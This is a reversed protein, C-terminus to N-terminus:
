ISKSPGRMNWGRRLVQIQSLKEVAPLFGDPWKSRQRIGNAGIVLTGVDTYWVCALRFAKTGFVMGPASVLPKRPVRICDVIHLRGGEAHPQHQGVIQMKRIMRSHTKYIVLFVIIGHFLIHSMNQRSPCVFRFHKPIEELVLIGIMRKVLVIRRVIVSEPEVNKMSCALWETMLDEKALNNYRIPPFPLVLVLVHPLLVPVPTAAGVIIQPSPPFMDNVRHYVICSSTQSAPFERFHIHEALGSRGNAWTHHVSLRLPSQSSLNTLGPRAKFMSISNRRVIILCWYEAIM